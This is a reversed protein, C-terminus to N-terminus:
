LPNASHRRVVGRLAALRDAVPQWASRVSEIGVEHRRWKDPDPATLTTRSLPLAGEQPTHRPAAAGAFAAIRGLSQDPDSVLEEYSVGIWRDAGLSDLEDVIIRNGAAWQFAAIDTLTKGRMDRWGPPLLFCWAERDWGPLNRFTVFRGSRLGEQWADVLSGINPEPRRHLFVFRAAPFVRLLFPINLANRPTKELLTIRAPRQERPLTMFPRGTHDRALFLFCRRMLDVTREDAHSSGLCGSDFAANEARLHPFANFIAHSEGGISWLGELRLLQEFLLNSGARPVSLVIVPKSILSGISDAALGQPAAAAAQLLDPRQPM